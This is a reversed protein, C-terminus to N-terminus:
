SFKFNMQVIIKLKLCLVKLLFHSFLFIVLLFDGPLHLFMLGVTSSNPPSSNIKSFLSYEPPLHHNHAFIVQVPNYKDLLVHLNLIFGISLLELYLFVLYHCPFFIFQNKSLESFPFAGKSSITPSYNTNSSFPNVIVLTFHIRVSFSQTPWFVM